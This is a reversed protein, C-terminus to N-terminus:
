LAQTGPVSRAAESFVEGRQAYSEFMDFSSCGPSLLVTRAEHRNALAHAHAVADPMSAAHVIEIEDGAVHKLTAALRQAIQGILVVAAVRGRMAQAWPELELGKDVGGAILVAPADVTALGAMAAHANTAKSDDIWTVRTGKPTQHRAVPQIRHPPATFTRLGQEIAPAPVGIAGVALAAAMANLWNHRGRLRLADLPMAFGEGSEVQVRLTGTTTDVAAELPSHRGDRLVGYRAIRARCDQSWAAIVPDDANLVALDDATMADLPRRKADIYAERDGGFYDTHDEAINTAILVSPAFTPSNWLQFASVEVVLWDADAHDLIVRSLPTGINGGTPARLGAQALLHAVLLTTTTKGDTGTIAVMPRPCARFALEIESVLEINRRCAEAVIPADPGIGPSIVAATVHDDLANRGLVLETGRPLRALLADRDLNDRSDSAIIRKSPACHALLHAAAIGSAGLGLIAVHDAGPLPDRM